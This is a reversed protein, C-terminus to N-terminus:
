QLGSVGVDCQVPADLNPADLALSLALAQLTLGAPCAPQEAERHNPKVQTTLFIIVFATLM